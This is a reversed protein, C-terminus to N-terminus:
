FGGKAFMAQLDSDAAFLDRTKEMDDTVNSLVQDLKEAENANYRQVLKNDKKNGAKYTLAATIDVDEINMEQEMTKENLRDKFNIIESM